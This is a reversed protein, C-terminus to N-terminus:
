ATAVSGDAEPARVWAYAGIALAIVAGGLVVARVSTATALSGGILLGIPVTGGFGMIWLAMVRGRVEDAIHAQLATSLSTVTVFYAYGVALIVPYAVWIENVLAFVALAIAFGVLSFRILLTRPFAAFVTGVSIAGLAAGLGFLAYLGGYLAGAPNIHLDHAAVVPMLGIFPLCFFSISFITVLCYGVLPDRRAVILGGSLRALGADARAAAPDPRLRPLTVRAIVLIAFGYTAANIVFIGSADVFPLLLGGIAPGIVRSLNMQVSQLSVAGPLDPRPVLM